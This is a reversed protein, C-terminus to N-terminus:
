KNFKFETYGYEKSLVWRGDKRRKIFGDKQAHLFVECILKRGKETYAPELRTRQMGDHTTGASKPVLQGFGGNQYKSLFCYEGGTRRIIKYQILIANMYQPCINLGNVCTTITHLGVSAQNMDHWEVKPAVETLNEQLQINENKLRLSNEQENKLDTALRIITDPDLLAEKIKKPTMYAGHKRISPLIVDTVLDQFGKATENKAKFCLKYFINEPIFYPLNENESKLLGFNEVQQSSIGKAVQQSSRFENLYEKVTRWRVYEKGSKIETFGLGRAVHELSLEAVGNENLRCEVGEIIIEKM